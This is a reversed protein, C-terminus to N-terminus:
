KNKDELQLRKMQKAVEKPLQEKVENKIATYRMVETITSLVANAAFITSSIVAKWSFKM